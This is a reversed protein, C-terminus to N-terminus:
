IICHRPCEAKCIGCNTCKDYDIHAINDVVHIANVPCKKECKKCAICGIACTNMVAKGKDGSSCVVFVNQEYPVLEILKKPCATVCKSCAKCAEKDVVAIGSIIHLADFPCARICTGYGLCGYNCGKPGGTPVYELMSCDEVGTYIYNDKTKGCDGNCKVFATMRVSIGADTGMIKAIRKATPEGGVPCANAPAEGAAIAKALGDCGPYGCGGCNNGPLEDRVYTEKEDVEVEFKKGAVGLFVGIFLGLGGVLATAILIGSISM